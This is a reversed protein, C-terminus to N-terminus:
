LKLVMSVHVIGTKPSTFKAGIATFGLKEYFGVSSERASLYINESLNFVCLKIIHEVIKFGINKSRFDPKVAMQSIIGNGDDDYTLRGVGVAKSENEIVVHISKKEWPDNIYFDANDINQFLYNRRIDRGQEYLADGIKVIQLQM